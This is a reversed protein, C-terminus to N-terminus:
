RCSELIAKCDALSLGTGERLTKIAEIKLGESYIEQARKLPSLQTIETVTYDVIVGGNSFDVDLSADYMMDIIEKAHYGDQAKVRFEINMKFTKM